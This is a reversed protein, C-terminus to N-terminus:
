VAEAKYAAMILDRAPSFSDDTIKRHVLDLMPQLKELAEARTRGDTIKLGTSLETVTWARGAKHLGIPLGDITDAYGSVKETKKLGGGASMYIYFKTKKM